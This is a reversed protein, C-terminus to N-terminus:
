VPRVLTFLLLGVLVSFGAVAGFILPLPFQEYVAAVRGGIFEGVPISLFRVGM